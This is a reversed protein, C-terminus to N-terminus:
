KGMAKKIFGILMTLVVGGIGGTIVKGIIISLDGVDDAKGFGLSALVLPAFLGGVIGVLSNGTTGLSLKKMFAGVTNGGIVGGFMNLILPLLSEM